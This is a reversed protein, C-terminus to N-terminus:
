NRNIKLGVDAIGPLIDRKMDHNVSVVISDNANLRLTNLKFSYQFYSVGNAMKLGDRDSFKCSLTDIVVRNGPLIHQRVILTLGIFPYMGNIRIGLHEDYMGPMKMKPVHYMLTDNKEWGSIQTHNYSDYVTTFDCSILTIVLMIVSMWVIYAKKRIM